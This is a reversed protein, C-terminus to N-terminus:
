KIKNIPKHNHNINHLKHYDYSVTFNMHNTCTSHYVEKFSKGFYKKLLNFFKNWENDNSDDIGRRSRCTIKGTITEHVYYHNPLISQVYQRPSLSGSKKRKNEM